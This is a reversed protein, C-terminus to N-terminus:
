KEEVTFAMEIYDDRWEGTDRDPYEARSFDDLEVVVPITVDGEGEEQLLDYWFDVEYGNAYLHEEIGEAKSYPLPRTTFSWVRKAGGALFFQQLTGMAGREKDVNKEVDMDVEFVYPIEIHDFKIIYEKAMM